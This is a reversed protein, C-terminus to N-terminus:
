QLKLYHTQRNNPLTQSGQQHTLHSSVPSGVRGTLGWCLAQQGTSLIKSSHTFQRYRYAGCFNSERIIIYKERSFPEATLYTQLIVSNFLTLCTETSCSKESGIIQGPASHICYLLPSTFQLFKIDCLAKRSLCEIARLSFELLCYNNLM